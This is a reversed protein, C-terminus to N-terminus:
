EVAVEVARVVGSYTGIAKISKINSPTTDTCDIADGSSDHLTVDVQGPDVSANELTKGDSLCNWPAGLAKLLSDATQCGAGAPCNTGGAGEGKYFKELVMELGSDTVQFAAVSKRTAGSNKRASVSAALVGMAAVLTLSLVVLSFVLASGKKERVGSRKEEVRWM